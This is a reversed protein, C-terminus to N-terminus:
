LTPNEALCGLISVLLICEYMQTEISDIIGRLSMKKRVNKMWRRHLLVDFVKFELRVRTRPVSYEAKKEKIIRNSGAKADSRCRFLDWCILLSGKGGVCANM